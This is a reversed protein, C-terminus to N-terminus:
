QINNPSVAATNKRAERMNKLINKAKRLYARPGKRALAQVRSAAGPAIMERADVCFVYKGSIRAIDESQRLESEVFLGSDLKKYVEGKMRGSGQRQRDALTAAPHMVLEKYRVGHRNLWAETQPRYKELRSTIIWGIEATPLFLPEVEDLFRQYKPGDDDEEVRCDRCLVGDMDFCWSGVAGHHMINWAFFHKSPTLRVAHFDVLKESLHTVYVTAFQIRHPLNLAALQERIERLQTGAGVSDDVVLINLPQAHLDEPVGGRMRRKGNGLVRGEIFGHLDAMPINLYLSIMAAPPIGSRPIGVILDIDRPLSPLLKIIDAELDAYSKFEM